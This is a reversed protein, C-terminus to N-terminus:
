TWRQLYGRDLAAMDSKNFNWIKGFVLRLSWLSMFFILGTLTPEYVCSEDLSWLRVRVLFLIMVMKECLSANCFCSKEQTTSSVFQWKLTTLVERMTWTSATAKKFCVTFSKKQFFIRHLLSAHILMWWQHKTTTFVLMAIFFFLPLISCGFHNIDNNSYALDSLTLVMLTQGNEIRRSPDRPRRGCHLRMCDSRKANRVVVVIAIRISYLLTVCLGDVHTGVVISEGAGLDIRSLNTCCRSVHNWDFRFSRHIQSEFFPLIKSVPDHVPCAKRELHCCSRWIGFHCFLTEKGAVFSDEFFLMSLERWFVACFPYRLPITFVPTNFPAMSLLNPQCLQLFNCLLSCSSCDFM